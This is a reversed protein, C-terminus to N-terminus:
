AGPDRRSRLALACGAAGAVLAFLGSMLLGVRFGLPAFVLELEHSGAPIAVAMGVVNAPQVPAPRGDLLASWGPYIQVPIFAFGDAAADVVFPGLREERGWRLARAVREVASPLGVVPADELVIGNPSRDLAALAAGFDPVREVDTFFAAPSGVHRNGALQVASGPLPPLRELDASLLTAGHLGPVIVSAIRFHDIVRRGWPTDSSGQLERQVREVLAMRRALPLSDYASALAFRSPLHTVPFIIEKLTRLREIQHPSKASAYFTTLRMTHFTRNTVHVARLLPDGDHRQRLAAAAPAEDYLSRPHFAIPDRKLAYAEGAAVALFVWPLADRRRIWLCSAGALLTITLLLTLAGAYRATPPAQSLLPLCIV